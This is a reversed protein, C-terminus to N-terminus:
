DPLDLTHDVQLITKPCQKNRCIVPRIDWLSAPPLFLPYVRLLDIYGPQFILLQDHLHEAVAHLRSASRGSLCEWASREDNYVLGDRCQDHGDSRTPMGGTVSR